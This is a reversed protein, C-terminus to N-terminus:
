MKVMKKTVSEKETKLTVFYIGRAFAILNIEYGHQLLTVPINEDSFVIKGQANCIAIKGISLAPKYQIQCTNYCPNPFINLQNNKYSKIERVGTSVTDCPSGEIAGLAYNPNNPLGFYTRAGGLYFSYPTFICAPYASDPNNIVSLNMNLPQYLTDSYPLTSIYCSIIPRAYYIKNDPALRLVGPGKFYVGGGDLYNLLTDRTLAPNADELDYQLLLYRGEDCGTYITNVYLYRGNPSFEGSWSFPALGNTDIIDEIMKQNSLEGTCRNFDYVFTDVNAASPSISYMKDGTKNFGLAFLNTYTLPENVPIEEIELGGPTVLILLFFLDPGLDSNYYTSKAILWWDRGNGHRISKIEAALPSFGTAEYAAFSINKEIVKGLGGNANIDIISYNIGIPYDDDSLDYIKTTFCYYLSDNSPMPVIVHDNFWGAGSVCRGNEMINHEKTYIYGSEFNGLTDRCYLWEDTAGAAYGEPKWGSRSGVYFLLNGLSDSISSTGGRSKSASRGFVPNASDNWDILASDGFCWINGEKQAFSPM